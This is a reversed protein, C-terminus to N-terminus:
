PSEEAQPDAMALVTEKKLFPLATPGDHSADNFLPWVGLGAARDTEGLAFAIALVIRAGVRTELASSIVVDASTAQVTEILNRPNGWLAPKLVYIGPWGLDQWLRFDELGLVAEDLALKVPYDHALGLMLDVAGQAVPQEIFEIQSREAAISLWREATRRDWAGNADLRLRAKEPLCGLLDDLMAHEDRPDAVGVKWKFTRFGLELQNEVRAMATQGAPLLGAVPLYAPGLHCWRRWDTTLSGLAFGLEGGADEAAQLDATTPESGLRRLDREIQDLTAGGFGPIPAAEGWVNGKATEWRLWFGERQAWAGHATRLSTRFPLKYREFSLLGSMVALMGPLILLAFDFISEAQTSEKKCRM